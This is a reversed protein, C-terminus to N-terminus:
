TSIVNTATTSSVWKTIEQNKSYTSPSISQVQSSENDSMAQFYSFPALFAKTTTKHKQQKETQSTSHQGPKPGLSGKRMNPTSKAMAATQQM